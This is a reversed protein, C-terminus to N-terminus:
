ETVRVVLSCRQVALEVENADHIYVALAKLDAIDLIPLSPLSPAPPM